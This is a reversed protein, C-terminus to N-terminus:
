AFERVAVKKGSKATVREVSVIAESIAGDRQAQGQDISEQVGILKAIEEKLAKVIETAGNSGTGSAKTEAATKVSEGKHLEAVYGDYPVFDLGNAHSGDVKPPQPVSAVNWTVMGELDPVTLKNLMGQFFATEAALSGFMREGDSDLAKFQSSVADTGIRGKNALYQAWEGADGKMQAFMKGDADEIIKFSSTASLEGSNIAETMATEWEETSGTFEATLTELGNIGADKFETFSVTANDFGQKLMEQAATLQETNGTLMTLAEGQENYIQRSTVGLAKLNDTYMSMEAKREEWTGITRLYLAGEAEGVINLNDTVKVLEGSFANTTTRLTNFHETLAKNEKDIRARKKYGQWALAAVVVVAGAVTAAGALQSMSASAATSSTSVATLNPAAMVAQSSTNAMAPGLLKASATAAKAGGTMAKFGAVVSQVQTGGGALSATYGKYATGLGTVAKSLLGSSSAASKTGTVYNAISGLMGGSGSFMKAFKASAWAAVMEAIMRIFMDKITSTFDSFSLKGDSLASNMSDYILDGFAGQTNEVFNSWIEGMNGVEKDTTEAFEKTSEGAGMVADSYEDFTIKGSDLLKELIAQETSVDDLAFGFKEMVKIAEAESAGFKEVESALRATKDAKSESAKTQKDINGTVKEVAKGVFLEGQLLKDLEKDVGSMAKSNDNLVGNLEGIKAKSNTYTKALNTMRKQYEWVEMSGKSFELKLKAMDNMADLATNSLKNIETQTKMIATPEADGEILDLLENLGSLASQIAPLVFKGIALGWDKMHATFRGWEFDVSMKMKDFAETTAGARDDMKQLTDAFVEAQAGTLSMVAKIAESSKFLKGLSDKNGNTKERLDLLFKSLGKTELATSNFELGLRKAEKTAMKSPKLINSMMGQLQTGAVSTQLGTTTLSAMAAQLETFEVGLQASMPAVNGMADSLEGITTKGAKMAIFMADSYSEAEDAGAGYANLASTLGDAATAVDTVGGIALRNAVDLIEIAEAADSAGASIISYLAESNTIVDGGYEVSLKRVGETLEAMSDEVDGSLLTSVEAMKTQFDISLKTAKILAVGVAALGGAALLKAKKGMAGFQKEVKTGEKELRNLQKDLRKLDREASKGDVKITLTATSM